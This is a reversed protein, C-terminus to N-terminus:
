PYLSRAASVRPAPSQLAHSPARHVQVMMPGSSRWPTHLARARGLGDSTVGTWPCGPGGSPSSAITACPSRPILTFPLYGEGLPPPPMRTLLQPRVLFHFRVALGIRTPPAPSTGTHERPM